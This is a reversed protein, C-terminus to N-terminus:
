TMHEINIRPGLYTKRAHLLFFIMALLMPGGRFLIIDTHYKIVIYSTLFAVCWVVVTWNMSEPNLDVGKVSPLCLIPIMLGVFSTASTNHILIFHHAPVPVPQAGLYGCPLSWRGLNWPGARWREGAFFCRLMVPLTFAFYAGVAGVGAPSSDPLPRPGASALSESFIAGIAVPGAFILCLCLVQLFFSEAPVSQGLLSGRVQVVFNFLCANVPTRTRPNVRAIVDSAPLLGDRAYAFALRSSSIACGQCGSTLM